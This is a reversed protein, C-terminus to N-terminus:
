SESPNRRWRATVEIAQDLNLRPDCLTTYRAGLDVLEAEDRVCEVVAQPTVELHLGGPRGGAWTVAQQFLQIEEVIAALRRAKLGRPGAFTNAHMPDSLWVVPHGAARVAAVLPPLKGAVARVGMRAILTLRGPERTPDLKECLAVLSEPTMDPGVKCALPNVVEALLSAHVGAPHNTRNGLWPWHTSSLLKGGDPDCRVMALEFDLLLAEHSTWVPAGPAEGHRRLAALFRAAADYCALMRRPDPSRAGADPEPGNILHGRFSPLEGGDTREVPRSRPKAYQGAMRGVRIVPQQSHVKLVGALVELMGVKRAVWDPTSEAPDEACDGAQLILLRGAAAERLLHRLRLVEDWPVLGPRNALADRVMAVPSDVPWTPQHRAPSALFAAMETAPLPTELLVDPSVTAYSMLVKGAEGTLAGAGSAAMVLKRRALDFLRQRGVRM